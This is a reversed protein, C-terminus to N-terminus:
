SSKAKDAKDDDIAPITGTCWVPAWEMQRGFLYLMIVHYSVQMYAYEIPYVEEYAIVLLAHVICSAFQAMQFKFIYNKLPNRLGFSTVLYHGYVLVHAMSNIFAGYAATGSGWGRSLLFGWVMGITAHHFVQLFSVQGFSKSGIMIFTDTWDLFKSLYHVFVFFEISANRQKNLGFPNLNLLDVQPALGAVMWACLVIQAVNYMPQVFRRLPETYAERNVMFRSFAMVALVYLVPLGFVAADSLMMDYVQGRLFRPGSETPGNQYAYWLASLYLAAINLTRFFGAARDVKRAPKGARAAAGAAHAAAGGAKAGGVQAGGAAAVSAM